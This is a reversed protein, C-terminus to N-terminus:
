SNGGFFPSNPNKYQAYGSVATNALSGIGSIVNTKRQVKRAAQEVGFNLTMNAKSLGYGLNRTDMFLRNLNTAEAARATDATQIGAFTGSSLSAGSAGFIANQTALVSKLTRQRDLEEQSAQAKEQVQALALNAKEIQMSQGALTGQRKSMMNGQHISYGTTLAGIGGSIALLVLPLM